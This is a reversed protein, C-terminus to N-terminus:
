TKRATVLLQRGRLHAPCLRLLLRPLFKHPRDRYTCANIKFDMFGSRQLLNRMEPAGWVSIHDYHITYTNEPVTLVYMGKLYIMASRLIQMANPTGLIMCGANKLVRHIERLAKAPAEVHEIVDFITVQEFSDPKFPLQQADALVFNTPPETPKQIDIHVDGRPITEFQNAGCGVDLNM